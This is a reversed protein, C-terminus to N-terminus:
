LSQGSGARIQRLWSKLREVEGDILSPDEQAYALLISGHYSAMLFNSHEESPGPAFGAMQFQAALWGTQVRYVRSVEFKLPDGERRLDRALGALPCGLTVYMEARIRAQEVFGELRRWPDDDSELAALYGTLLACWEDVAARGLDSKTKFYYFLNGASVGAATAVGALSTNVYGKRHFQGIAASVLRQRKDTAPRGM